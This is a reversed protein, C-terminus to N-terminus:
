EKVMVIEHFYNKVMATKSTWNLGTAEYPVYGGKEAIIDCRSFGSCNTVPVYGRNFDMGWFALPNIPTYEALGCFVDFLPVNYTNVPEMQINYMIPITWNTWTLNEATGNMPYITTTTHVSDFTKVAIQVDHDTDFRATLVLYGEPNDTWKQLYVDDTQDYVAIQSHEIFNGHADQLLVIRNDYGVYIIIPVPDGNPPYAWPCRDWDYLVHSGTCSFLYEHGDSFELKYDNGSEIVMEYPNVGITAQYYTDELVWDGDDKWLKIHEIGCTYGYVYICADYDFVENGTCTFDYYAGDFTLRYSAGNYIQFSYSNSTTSNILQYDSGDWIYLITEGVCATNGSVTYESETSVIITIAATFDCCYHNTASKYEVKVADDADNGSGSAKQDDNKVCLDAIHSSDIMVATGGCSGSTCAYCYWYPEPPYEVDLDVYMMWSFAGAHHGSTITGHEGVCTTYLNNACNTNTIEGSYVSTYAVAGGAAVLLVLAALVWRRM